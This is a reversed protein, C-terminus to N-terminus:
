RIEKPSQRPSVPTVLSNEQRTGGVIEVNPCSDEPKRRASSVGGSTVKARGGGGGGRQPPPSLGGDASSEEGEQPM